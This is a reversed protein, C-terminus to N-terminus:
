GISKKQKFTKKWIIKLLLKNKLIETNRSLSGKWNEERIRENMLQICNQEIILFHAALTM